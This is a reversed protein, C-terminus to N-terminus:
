LLVLTYVAISWRYKGLYQMTKYEGQNATDGPVGNWAPSDQTMWNEIVLWGGINVGKM